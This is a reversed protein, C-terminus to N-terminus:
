RGSEPQDLIALMRDLSERPNPRKPPTTFDLRLHQERAFRVFAWHNVFRRGYRNGLHSLVVRRAQGFCTPMKLLEVLDQTALRCRLSESSPHRTGILDPNPPTRGRDTLIVSLGDWARDNESFVQPAFERALAGATSSDLQSLLQAKSV